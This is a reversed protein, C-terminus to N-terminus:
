HCVEWPMCCRRGADRQLLNSRLRRGGFELPFSNTLCLSKPMIATEREREREREGKKKKREREKRPHPHTHRQLVYMCRACMWTTNHIPVSLSQFSHFPTFSSDVRTNCLARSCLGALVWNNPGWGCWQWHWIKPARKIGETGLLAIFFTFILIRDIAETSGESYLPDQM